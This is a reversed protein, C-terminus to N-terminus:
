DRPAASRFYRRSGTVPKRNRTERKRNEMRKVGVALYRVQQRRHAPPDHPQHCAVADVQLVRAFLRLRGILPLEVPGHIRLDLTGGNDPPDGCPRAGPLRHLTQPAVTVGSLDGRGAWQMGVEIAEIEM